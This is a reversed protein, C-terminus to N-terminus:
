LALTKQKTGARNLPIVILFGAPLLTFDDM